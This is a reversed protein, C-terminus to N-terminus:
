LPWLTGGTGGFQLWNMRSDFHVLHQGSTNKLNPTKCFHSLHFFLGFVYDWRGSATAPASAYSCLQCVFFSETSVLPPVIMYFNRLHMNKASRFEAAFVAVLMKFYETGEASNSTLDGLVSDLVSPIFVCLSNWISLLWFLLRLKMWMKTVTTGGQPTFDFYLASIMIFQRHLLNYMTLVDVPATIIVILLLQAWRAAKLTEESLGEEKVLEEFNVIDELDPVFRCVVCVSFMFWYLYIHWFFLSFEQLQM